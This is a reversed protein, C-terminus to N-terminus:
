EFGLFKIGSNVANRGMVDGILKDLTPRDGREGLEKYYENFKQPTYDAGMQRIYESRRMKEDAVLTAYAINNRLTQELGQRTGTAKGAVIQAAAQEKETIAGKLIMTVDFRNRILQSELTQFDSVNKIQDESLFPAFLSKIDNSIPALPNIQINPNSQLISLAQRSSNAQTILDTSENELKSLQEARQKGLNEEFKEQFPSQSGGVNVTTGGKGYMQMYAHQQEPPLQALVGLTQLREELESPANLQQLTGLINPDVDAMMGRIIQEPGIKGLASFSPRQEGPRLPGSMEVTDFLSGLFKQRVLERQREAEAKRRRDEFEMRRADIQSQIDLGRLDNLNQEGLQRQYNLITEPGGFAGALIYGLKGLAGMDAPSPIRSQQPFITM